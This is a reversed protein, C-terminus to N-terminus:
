RDVHEWRQSNSTYCGNKRTFLPSLFFSFSQVKIFFFFFTISWNELRFWLRAKRACSFHSERLSLQLELRSVHVGPNFALRLEICLHQLRM